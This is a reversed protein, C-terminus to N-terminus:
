KKGGQKRLSGFGLSEGKRGERLSDLSYRNYDHLFLLLFVVVAYLVNNAVVGPSPEMVAGFVLATMLLGSVFLVGPTFLGLILLGGLIVEAFPLIWAFPTVLFAPLQEAFRERLGSAFGGLGGTFKTLGYFFLLIGFTIRLLAYALQRHNDRM